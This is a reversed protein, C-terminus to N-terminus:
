TNEWKIKRHYQFRRRTQRKSWTYIYLAKPETKM